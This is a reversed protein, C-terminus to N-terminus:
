SVGVSLIDHNWWLLDDAYTIPECCGGTGGGGGGSSSGAGAHGVVPIVQRVRVALAAQRALVVPRTPAVRVIPTRQSVVVVNKAVKAVTVSTCCGM